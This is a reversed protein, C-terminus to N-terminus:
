DARKSDKRDKITTYGLLLLAIFKIFMVIRVFLDPLSFVNLTFIVGVIACFFVIILSIRWLLHNFSKM